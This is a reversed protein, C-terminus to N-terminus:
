PMLGKGFSFATFSRFTEGVRLIPSPWDPHHICDPFHQTELCLGSRATYTRGDKGCAPHIANGTYLQVGPQDTTVALSIGSDPSYLVAASSGTLIYNHDYEQTGVPRLTRFDMIGDVPLLRGTPLCNADNENYRDAQIQLLHDNISGHGSLNFYSHNTLNLITDADTVATYELRLTTDDQWCFTIQVQMTGPYGEEGHPSTLTCVLRNEDATVSWFRHSFGCLGGHLHNPGNNCALTYDQGNLRFHGAAIRNAFRGVSAGFYDQGQEYQCPDEYGLVVDTPNGSRDPVTLRQITCGFDLIEVTCGAESAMTWATVARGDSLSGFFRNSVTM